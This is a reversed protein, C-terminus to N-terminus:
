WPRTRSRPRPWPCPTSRRTTSRSVTVNVTTTEKVGGSTVTYTFSDPRPLQRGPTYTLNGNAAFTVAGNAGQTVGSVVRGANEFNDASGGGVGTLANFRDPHRRRHHRQRRRHGRGPHRHDGGHRHRDARRRHHRRHPRPTGADPTTTPPQSTPSPRWPPTSKPPRAPSPSRAPATTPSRPAAARSPLTGSGAPLAPHDLSQRQRRRRGRARSSWPTDELTSQPWPCPTSRRTMSRNVTVSVTTTEEVGGSTVTYTFSDPGHYNADPTYTLTGNAAFAVTGHAGQTVASVVRGANEFNDASAGHSGTIANFSIPTDEDTTVTDAVIDAVPTVTIALTDTDTLM